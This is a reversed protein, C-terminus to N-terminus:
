LSALLAHMESFDVPKTLHHRFGAQRTMERDASQGWGTLAVLTCRNDPRARLRRAVDLGSMGPMGLDLVAIDPAFSEARDLADRGNYAIEVHAGAERLLHALTDAADRNDDVVLIRRDIPRPPAVEVAPRAQRAHPVLPLRVEFRSGLGPGDSSASVAGGHLDVLNRVLALGIGLGHQARTDGADAQTFM